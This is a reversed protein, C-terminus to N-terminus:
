QNSERRTEANEMNSMKEISGNISQSSVHAIFIIENSLSHSMEDNSLHV